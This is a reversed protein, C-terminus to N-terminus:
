GKGAGCFSPMSRGKVKAKGLIMKWRRVQGVLRKECKGKSLIDCTIWWGGVEKGQEEKENKNCKVM